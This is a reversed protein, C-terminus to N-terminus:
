LYSIYLKPYLVIKYKINLRIVTKNSHLASFRLLWHSCPCGISCVLLMNQVHLEPTARQWDCCWHWMQRIFEINSAFQVPLHAQCSRDFKTYNMLSHVTGFELSQNFAQRSFTFIITDSKKLVWTLDKKICIIHLSHYAWTTEVVDGTLYSRCHNIM